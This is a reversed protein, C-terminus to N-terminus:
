KEGKLYPELDKYTPNVFVAKDFQVSNKLECLPSKVVTLKFDLRGAPAPECTCRWMDTFLGAFTDTIGGQIAPTYGVIEEQLMKDKDKSPRTNIFEHCSVISDVGLSRLSGILLKMLYTKFPGWYHAEMLSKRQDNLVKQIIIENVMTLGDLFFTQMEAPPNTSLEKMKDILFDYCKEVPRAKNDETLMITERRYPAFRKEKKLFNMPGDTNLDCDFMVLGPFQLALTTKGGGPPGILLISKPQRPETSEILKM